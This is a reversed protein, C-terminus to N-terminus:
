DSCEDSTAIRQPLYDAYQYTLYSLPMGGDDRLNRPRYRFITEIRRFRQKM